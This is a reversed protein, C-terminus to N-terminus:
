GADAATLAVRRAALDGADAAAGPIRRTAAAGYRARLEPNDALHFILRLAGLRAVDGSPSELRVLHALREVAATLAAERGHHLGPQGPAPEAM